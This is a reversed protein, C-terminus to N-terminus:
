TLSFNRLCWQSDFGRSEQNMSYSFQFPYSTFMKLPLLRKLCITWVLLFFVDQRVCLVMRWFILKEWVGNKLFYAKRLCREESFLSKEFVMRWFILKEWVGNKLFYAKRLCWEESFLSKESYLCAGLRLIWLLCVNGKIRLENVQM